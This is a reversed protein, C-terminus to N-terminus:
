KKVGFTIVWLWKDIYPELYKLAPERGELKFDEPLLPLTFREIRIAKIVPFYRAIAATLHLPSRWRGIRCITPKLTDAQWWVPMDADPQLQSPALNDYIKEVAWGEKCYVTEGVQFPPKIYRWMSLSGSDDQQYYQFQYSGITARQTAEDGEAVLGLFQWSDPDQNIEKLGTTRRTEAEGYQDLVRKKTQWIRQTFLLSHM